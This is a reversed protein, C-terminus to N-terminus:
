LFKALQAGLPTAYARAELSAYFAELSREGLTKPKQRFTV